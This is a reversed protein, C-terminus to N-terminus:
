LPPMGKDSFHITEKSVESIPLDTITTIAPYGIMPESMTEIADSSCPIKFILVLRKVNNGM